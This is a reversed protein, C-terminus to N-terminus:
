KRKGILSWIHKAGVAIESAFRGQEDILVASPTGFMGLKESLKNGKDLVIPAKLGLRSHSEVEGDSFLILDPEEVGRSHDWNKLDPTMEKCHPCTTSWFAVLTQKGVLDNSRVIRGDIADIEFEPIRRGLEVRNHDNEGSRIKFHTFDEALEAAEINKVLDIIATDGAAVHSAIKGNADVYLASPTWKAGVSEAFERGEGVFLTGIIREGFKELNEEITGSSIIVVKVKGALSETLAQFKPVFAKCPACATNVFLFLVPLNEAILSSPTRRNGNVDVLELEPVKAGIPLGDHPSGANERVVPGGSSAVIELVDLRRIIEYQRSSVRRLFSIAIGLLLVALIVLIMQLSDRDIDAISMGQDNRGNSIIVIAPVLFIVNRIVSSVGVPESHIQGFCHCDPRNGKAMQIVMGLVFLSLLVAAAIAGFWSSINFLLLVAIAIEVTPLVLAVFGVLSSPVGFEAAAKRSGSHDAFKTFGALGFIGALFLRFILSGLEM